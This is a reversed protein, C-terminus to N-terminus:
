SVSGLTKSAYVLIEEPTTVATGVKRIVIGSLLNAFAIAESPTRHACFAVALAALATDGAGSVDFVEKAVAPATQISGGNEALAVGQEGLTVTLYRVSHRNFIERAVADSSFTQNPETNFNALQLAETRNPKLLDVGNYCLKNKPKPDVALFFSYHKKLEVLKDLLAQTVTGKAYDSVLVASVANKQLFAEAQAIVTAVSAESFKKERDLRCLQQHRAIVRTKVITQVDSRFNEGCFSIGAERLLRQLVSGAEDTGVSGLFTVNAGLSKLNLAVNCAGGLRCAEHEIRVVPVPAEPSIREADGFIYRDLMADGIVLVNLSQVAQLISQVSKRSLTM